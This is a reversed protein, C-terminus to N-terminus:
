QSKKNRAKASKSKNRKRRPKRAVGSNAGRPMSHAVLNYGVANLKYEGEGVLDFYGANKANALTAKIQGPLPFGAIKFQTEIDKSNVSHKRSDQPVLNGLFYAVLAAMENASRPKKQSKFEKIHVASEPLLTPQSVPIAPADMLHPTKMSAPTRIGLRKMVYELVNSRIEPLLPELAALVTRIAGIEKDISESM